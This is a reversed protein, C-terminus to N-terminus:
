VGALLRQWLRENTMARVLFEGSEDHPREPAPKLPLVMTLDLGREAGRGVRIRGNHHHVIFYCAMLYISFERPYSSGNVFPDFLCAIAEPSIPSGNDTLRLEVETPEGAATAPLAAEFRVTGGEPLHSLELQLLFSFLKRFRHQDVWLPLLEHPIHNAVALHQRKLEESLMAVAKDLAEFLRVEADFKFPASTEDALDNLLGLLAQLKLQV